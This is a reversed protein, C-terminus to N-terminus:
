QCQEPCSQSKSNSGTGSVWRWDNSVDSDTAGFQRRWVYEDSIHHSFLISADIFCICTSSVQLEVSSTTTPSCFVLQTLSFGTQNVPNLVLVPGLLVSGQHKRPPTHDECILHIIFLSVWLIMEVREVFSFTQKFPCLSFSGLWLREKVTYRCFLVRDSWM